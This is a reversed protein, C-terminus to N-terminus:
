AANPGAGFADHLVARLRRATEEDLRGAQLAIALSHDAHVRYLAQAERPLARIVEAQRRVGDADGRVAPGTLAAAPSATRGINDAVTRLLHSVGASAVHPPAGAARWQEWALHALGASFAALMSAGLHYLPKDRAEIAFPHGGVALALPFLQARVERDGEISFAAGRFAAVCEDPTMSGLARSRVIAALPHFAGVRAGRAAASALASVDRSGSAHAVVTGATANVSECAAEIGNDSVTLLVVPASRGAEGLPVVRAGPVRAALARAREADRSAVASVRVGGRHLAQALATGMGGAGVIAVPGTTHTDNV